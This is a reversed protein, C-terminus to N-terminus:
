PVTTDNLTLVRMSHNQVYKQKQTCNKQGVKYYPLIRIRLEGQSLTQDLTCFTCAQLTQVSGRLRKKEWYVRQAGGTPHWRGDLQCQLVRVEGAAQLRQQEPRHISPALSLLVPLFSCELSTRNLIHNSFHKMLLRAHRHTTQAIKSTFVSELCLPDRPSRLWQRMVVGILM